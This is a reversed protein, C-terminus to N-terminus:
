NGSKAPAVRQAEVQPKPELYEPDPHAREWEIKAMRCSPCYSVHARLDKMSESWICGTPHSTHALPFERGEAEWEYELGPAGLGPPIAPLPGGFCVWPVSDDLLCDGHVPCRKASVDPTTTATNCSQCGLIVIALGVRSLMQRAETSEGLWRGFVGLPRPDAALVRVDL